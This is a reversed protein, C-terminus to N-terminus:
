FPPDDDFTEDEDEIPTGDCNCDQSNFDDYNYLLAFAKELGCQTVGSMYISHIISKIAEEESMGFRKAVFELEKPYSLGERVIRFDNDNIETKM